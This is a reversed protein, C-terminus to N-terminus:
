PKSLKTILWERNDAHEQRQAIWDDAADTSDFPGFVENCQQTVTLNEGKLAPEFEIVVIV